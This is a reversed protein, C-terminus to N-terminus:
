ALIRSVAERALNPVNKKLEATAVEVQASIEARANQLKAHAEALAKETIERESALANNRLEERRKAAEVRYAELSKDYNELKNESSERATDIAGQMHAITEKRKKVISRIPNILLYNLVVLTILFNLLQIVATFDLDIMTNDRHRFFTKCFLLKLATQQAINYLRGQSLLWKWHNNDTMM